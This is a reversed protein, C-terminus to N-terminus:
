KRFGPIELAAATLTSTEVYLHCNSVGEHSIRPGDPAILLRVGVGGGKYGSGYCGIFEKPEASLLPHRQCCSAVTSVAM